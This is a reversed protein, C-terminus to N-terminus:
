GVVEIEGPQWSKDFFPELPGYLRLLTFWGKGPITQVWNGRGVGDPREPAFCVTTSGDASVEAAPSPYSQSGARPYRQPTDLMSRTQNDYLTLSWFDRAPIDRPLTLKYTRAGDMYRGDADVTGLLYQSGVGSLLMTEAPSIGIGGYYLGTRADLMRYGTSRSTRVGEPRRVGDQVPGEIVPPRTEFDHGWVCLALPMWASDAYCYADPDRPRMFLSRATANGVAAAETLISKMREDPAFPKGKVIGIAAISGMLEPDLSGAPEQQVVEDLWEYYSSDNPMITSMAKGSARHFVTEPPPTVAGLGAEGRLFAAFSTGVAGAPYRYAKMSGRLLEDAPAPDGDKLFVRGFMMVRMTRPRAVYFGGEPLPGGYGPPVLLYTGGVGRDPGAGGVDTVWGSWYDNVAGLLGPPVELVMPGTSLDLFGTVYVTDVNATLFRSKPDMLESFILFENDAVGAELYGRHLAHISVGQLANVFAEFAHVFDLHDYVKDLTAPSPMGDTFDLTGLRTEARDPTTVAAPTGDDRGLTTQGTPEM